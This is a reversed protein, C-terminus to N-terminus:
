KKRATAAEPIAHVVVRRDSRFAEQLLKQIETASVTDYRALDRALSAPEGLYHNYRQLTDALGGMDGHGQLSSMMAAQLQNKARQLEQTSVGGRRIDDLEADIHRLLTETTVGPHAVADIQFVSQAQQSQNHVSVSAALTRDLRLRRELRSSRGQALIASLVDAAADGPQFYAPAHWAVMLKPLRAIKEAHRIVVEKDLKVPAVEPLDPKPGGPLGAFYKKVLAKTNEPDFDGAIVLTANSPAYWRRFFAKVDDLTAAELDKMSGIISGFYPHPLPFLAQTLKEEALGYPAVEYSQRRENKVVEQQNTLKEPTVAPLLFGMRDSELWLATELHNSPVTQFYNTRDFGTSGNLGTAGIRELLPIHVDDGVHKSGQFMMHEFLHAFGTRGPLEHYAGVHYWVNVTVTPLRRDVHLIIQLGNPLTYTDLKLEPVDTGQALALSSGLLALALITKM